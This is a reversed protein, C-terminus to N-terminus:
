FLCSSVSLGSHENCKQLSISSVYIKYLNVCLDNFNQGRQLALASFLKM